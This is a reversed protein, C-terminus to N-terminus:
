GSDKSVTEHIGTYPLRPSDHQADHGEVHARAGPRPAETAQVYFDATQARTLHVAIIQHVATIQHESGTFYEHVLKSLM